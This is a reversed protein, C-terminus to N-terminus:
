PKGDGRVDYCFLVDQDRLYLRGDAVVPHPWSPKASRDPQDFRGLLEFKEPAAKVLSVPGRESRCFLMGDAYTLSCKGCSRDKWQLEGTKYDLCTLVGPDDSGYLYGDILLMGGHHNKMQKTFYVEEAQFQRGRRKVRVLGGGTGYGSSAFVDGDAFLPTSANATGNAPADYRWLFEGNKASVAIVGQKTFQVYQPVRSIEVKIISSYDAVDGVKAEWVPKGNKKQLALITAQPGGPTCIVWPGDVLVSESYGWGGVKGGFEGVLDRRWAIEGTSANCCLLDGNLGLAYIRDGDVTPTSRPGPYGGGGHRVPGIATAWVQEGRKTRDLAYVWEQGERNGMEYILKGSISPTAYGEGLGSAKWLLQPGEEPWAKLLGTEQSLGNRLPGRWAPWDGSSSVIRRSDAGLLAMVAVAAFLLRFKM